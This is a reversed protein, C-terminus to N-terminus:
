WTYTNFCLFKLKGTPLHANMDIYRMNQMQKRTPPLAREEEYAVPRPNLSGRQEQFTLPKPRQPGLIGSAALQPSTKKLGYPVSPSEPSIKSLIISKELKAPTTFSLAGRSFQRLGEDVRPKFEPPHNHQGKFGAVEQEMSDFSFTAPCTAVACTYYQVLVETKAENKKSGNKRWTYNGRTSEDNLWTENREEM